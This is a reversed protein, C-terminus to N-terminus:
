YIVAFVASVALQSDAAGAIGNTRATSGTGIDFSTRIQDYAVQLRAGYHAALALDIGGAAAVGLSGTSKYGQADMGTSMVYPVDVSAFAAAKQSLALRAVAGGAVASYDADPMNLTTGMQLGSRDAVDRQRWYSAGFAVSSRGFVVRYRAGVVYQAESVPVTTTTNPLKIGLGVMQRVGVVFGIGAGTGKGIASPYIEADVQAGYAGTAVPPPAVGTALKSYSLTRYTGAAGGDIFVGAQAVPNRAALDDDALSHHKNRAHEGHATVSEADGDGDADGDSTSAAAQPADGDIAAVHEHKAAHKTEHKTEAKAVPEDETVQEEDGDTDGSPALQKALESKLESKTKKAALSKYAIEVNGSSKGSLALVIKKKSGDKEVSGYILVDVGLKTRLARRSKKVTLDSDLSRMAKAVKASSTVKAASGAVDIVLATVRGDDDGDLPAVAVKPKALAVCPLALMVLIPILTRM